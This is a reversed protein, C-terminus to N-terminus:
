LVNGLSFDDRHYIHRANEKLEACAEFSSVEDEARLAAQLRVLSLTVDDIDEHNILMQLWTVTDQWSDLYADVTERARSWEGKETMIHVEEAASVYRESLKRNENEEVWGVTVTLVLLVLSIMLGTRM